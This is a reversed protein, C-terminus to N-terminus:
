FLIRFDMGISRKITEPLRDYKVLDGKSDILLHERNNVRDTLRVWVGEDDIRASFPSNLPDFNYFKEEIKKFARARNDEKSEM